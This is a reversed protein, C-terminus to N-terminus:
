RTIKTRATAANNGPRPDPTVSALNAKDRITQQSTKATAKIQIRWTAGAKLAALRCTVTARRTGARPRTCQGSATTASRFAAGAPLHDTLAAQWAQSPGADADTITYTLTQGPKATAPATLKAALDAAPTIALSLSGGDSATTVTAPTLPTIKGTAPSIAFQALVGKNESTVYANKGDPAIVITEPNLVTAATSAPKPGLAGTAPNVRYQSVTDNAATLVYANKGDPTFEIDHTGRGTTVSAPSMPSLRGTAPSIRYQWIKGGEPDTVYANKGDPAITVSQAGGTAVTSVPKASLAGTRPNIGYQALIPKSYSLVYAYKCDPAVVIWAPASGTAVTRPSMPTLKGTAPSISYQSITHATADAVYASKGDPAVAIAIPEAGTAVTAPSKPTLKGTAPNISYQSIENVPTSFSGADAIYASNGQPTVAALVPVPGSAVAPPGLPRLAGSGSPASGFQSVDSTSKDAIYLFPGAAAASAAAMPKAPASGAALVWAAM